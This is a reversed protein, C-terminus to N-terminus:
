VVSIVATSSGGRHSRSVRREAFTPVLKASLRCDTPQYLESASEPWPTRELSIAYPLAM